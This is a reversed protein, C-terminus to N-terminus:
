CYKISTGRPSYDDCTRGIFAVSSEGTLPDIGEWHFLYFQGASKGVAFYKYGLEPGTVESGAFNLKLIKNRNGAINFSIKWKLNGSLVIANIAFELGTNRMDGINQQQSGFGMYLPIASSYLMDNTVKYYYDLTFKLKSDFLDADIGVDISRTKEWKLNPNNPQVVQLLNMGNYQIGNPSLSYQGQNGYYGGTGDIGSFGISGRIKLDKIWLYREMFPEGSIRWGASFSPFGIYRHNKNFRSSGDLRYTAGLLYKDEFRYNLRGFVSFLAWQQVLSSSVRSTQAQSISLINDSPFGRGTIMDNLERSTEFSQGVVGNFLHRNYKRLLTATNNVVFKRNQITTQTADGGVLDPRSVLRSYGESNLFDIGAESRLTIWNIPRYEIFINGLNRVDIIYNIDARAQAIPNDTRGLSNPAFGFYYAGTQDYVPINPAKLIANQFISQANLSTNDSYNLSFQSGFSLKESSKYSVNIHANYKSYDQNIIYSQQDVSSLSLYYTMKDTGASVSANVERSVGTRLVDNLWSKETGGSYKGGVFSTYFESYQAGNMLTPKGIPQSYSTITSLEVKPAGKFGHKTTVLIVGAAGRSGYIATAYADKLIEISEIDDPNLMSLQNREFDSNFPLSNSVSSGGVSSMPISTRDFSTTNQSRDNGYIPVGDIVILPNNSSGNLSTIGRITIATAGGPVGSSQSIQVGAVTGALANDFSLSTRDMEAPKISAVAGTLDRREQTGYGVIAIEKLAVVDSKLVISALKLLKDLRIERTQYGISSIVMMDGENASIVFNGKQDAAVGNTTGKIVVTAGFLGEPLETAIIRGEYKQNKITQPKLIQAVTLFSSFFLLCVIWAIKKKM